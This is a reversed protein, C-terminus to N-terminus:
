EKECELIKDRTTLDEEENLCDDCFALRDVLSRGCNFCFRM